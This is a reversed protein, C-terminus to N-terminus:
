ADDGGFISQSVVYFRAKGMGPATESRSAKGNSDPILHGREILLAAVSKPNLGRCVENRWTAAPILYEMTGLGTERKFGARNHIVTSDGGDMPQFRSNGHTSIFEAVQEIATKDEAAGAGGRAELWGAFINAAASVAELREWPLIGLETAIEGAMAILGLRRCARAVQGTAGVPQYKAAFWDIGIRIRAATDDLNGLLRQVFEPGAIGYHQAAQDKIARALADGNPLDHLTDFLGLGKGADAEIDFIRVEQGTPSRRGRGDSRAHEALSIEGSSLFFTLWRKAARAEGSQSARSKGTGNALLYAVSGAERPDLQALEDLILLCDNAQEAVGELGNATARWQRVFTPSGWVSAAALLSTSKGISSPGRLHLGGGESGTAALLPGVFAACLAIVLRTNGVALRAMDQWGELTGQRRFEHDLAATGQYVVLDGSGDEITRDPLAYSGDQWGVRSVARARRDIRVMSLFTQLANRDKSVPSVYLGGDLLMHRVERGDGALLARGISLRHPEGDDDRWQLLVGWAQSHRDRTQAIVDFAGAIHRPGDDSDLLLGKATMKFGAPFRPEPMARGLSEAIAEDGMDAGVDAYDRATAAEKM